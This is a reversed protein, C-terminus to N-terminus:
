NKSGPSFNKILQYKQKIGDDNELIVKFGSFGKVVERGHMQLTLLYTDPKERLTQVVGMPGPEQFPLNIYYTLDEAIEGTSMLPNSGVIHRIREGFPKFSSYLNETVTVPGRVWLLISLTLAVLAGFPTLVSNKKLGRFIMASFFLPCAVAAAFFVNSPFHNQTLREAIWRDNPHVIELHYLFVLIQPKFAIWSIFVGSGILLLMVIQWTCAWGKFPPNGKSMSHSIGHAILLSVMPYVPVLYADRKGPVLSLLVFLTIFAVAPYVWRPDKLHHKIGQWLVVPLFLSWPLFGYAIMFFYSYFPENHLAIAPDDTIRGMSELYIMSIFEEGGELSAQVLWFSTIALPVWLLKAWAIRKKQIRTYLFLAILPFFWGLPGKTLQAFGLASAALWTFRSQIKPDSTEMMKWFAVLALTIFFVFLMDIRSIISLYTFQLSTAAILGAMFGTLPSFLWFGLLTTLFVAGAGALVSPLRLSIENVKGLVKSSLLGAWYFLPPKTRYQDENIKPLWVSEGAFMNAIPIAERAERRSFDSQLASWFYLALAVIAPGWLLVWSHKKESPKQM